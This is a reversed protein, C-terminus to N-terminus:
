PRPNRRASGRRHHPGCPAPTSTAEHHTSRPSHPKSPCVILLAHEGYCAARSVTSRLDASSRSASKSRHRSGVARQAARHHFPAGRNLRHPPRHHLKDKEVYTCEPPACQFPSRPSRSSAPPAPQLATRITPKVIIRAYLDGRGPPGIVLDARCQVNHSLGISKFRQGQTRAIITRCEGEPAEDMCTAPSSRIDSMESIEM